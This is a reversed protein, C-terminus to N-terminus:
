APSDAYADALWGLLQGDVDAASHLRVVYYTRGASKMTSRIREHEIPYPVSFSVNVWRDRPRLEAFSRFRKLFIGVSVPEVHIPGVERLGAVVAEFIPREHAPGTAFYDELAMAPACDHSQNRHAFQRRCSPCVWREVARRTFRRGLRGDHEM